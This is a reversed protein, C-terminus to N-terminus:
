GRAACWPSGSARRPTRHDPRPTTACAAKFEPDDALHNAAVVQELVTNSAITQEITKLLSASSVDEQDPRRQFEAPNGRRQRNWRPAPWMVPPAWWIFALALTLGLLVGLV